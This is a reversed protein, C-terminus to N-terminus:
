MISRAYEASIRASEMATQGEAPEDEEVILWSTGAEKAAAIVAPINVTGSGVPRFSFPIADPAPRHDIGLSEYHEAPRDGTSDKLHVLPARGAYTRLLAAPDVGVINAWCVDIETQM